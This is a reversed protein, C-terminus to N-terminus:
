VLNFPKLIDNYAFFHHIVYHRRTEIKREQEFRQAREVFILVINIFTELFTVM